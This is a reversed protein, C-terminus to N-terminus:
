VLPGIARKELMATLAEFPVPRSYYYGQLNHCGIASLFDVQEKLEVGEAILPTSLSQALSVVMELIKQSRAPNKADELFRMDLKLVDVPIDKLTNLSSYGSGFDDMEIRFGRKQLQRILSIMKDMDLVIASETIELNLFQPPIAYKEILGTIIPYIDGSYVDRPSINVSIPLDCGSRRLASIHACASEWVYQDLQYILGMREMLPIFVGPSIMGDEPHNWRVLAEAGVINGTLSDIQPQFYLIFQREKLAALIEAILRNEQLMENRLAIDYTAIRNSADDKIAGLAMNARDCMSAVPISRDAIHYVGCYNLVALSLNYHTHFADLKEELTKALSEELAYETPACIAFKDSELRGYIIDHQYLQTLTQGITRLLEDGATRGLLDNLIKFQRINTTIISYPVDPHRRLMEESRSYFTAQNYVGTLADHAALYLRERQKKLEETIDEMDLYCGLYRGKKDDFGKYDVRLDMTTGDSLIVHATMKEDMGPDTILLIDKLRDLDYEGRRLAFWKEALRNTFICKGDLDFFALASNMDTLVLRGMATNLTRPLYIFTFYHFVIGAIGYTIVSIDIPETATILFIANGAVCIVLILLFIGYQKKYLRPSALWKSIFLLVFIGLLIYCLLLHLYFPLEQSFM